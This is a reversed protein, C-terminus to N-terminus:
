VPWPWNISVVGTIIGDARRPRGDRQGANGSDGSCEDGKVIMSEAEREAMVVGASM